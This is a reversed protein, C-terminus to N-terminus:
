PGRRFSGRGARPFWARGPCGGGQARELGAAFRDLFHGGGERQQHALAFCGAAPGPHLLIAPQNLRINSRNEAQCPCKRANGLPRIRKQIVGFGLCNLCAFGMFVGFLSVVRTSSPRRLRPVDEKPCNILPLSASGDIDDTTALMSHDNRWPKCLHWAACSGCPVFAGRWSPRLTLFLRCARAM